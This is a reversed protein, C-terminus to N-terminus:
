YFMYSFINNIIDNNLGPQSLYYFGVNNKYNIILPQNNLIIQYLNNVSLDMNNEFNTLNFNLSNLSETYPFLRKLHEYCIALQKFLFLNKLLAVRNYNIYLNYIYSSNENNSMILTYNEYFFDLIVKREENFNINTLDTVNIINFFNPQFM